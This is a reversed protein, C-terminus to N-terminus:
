AAHRAPEPILEGRAPAFTAPQVRPRRLDRVAATLAVVAIAVSVAAVAFFINIWVHLADSTLNM